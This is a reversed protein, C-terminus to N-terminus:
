YLISFDTKAQLKFIEKDLQLDNKIELKTVKAAKPGKKLWNLMTQIDNDSGCILTEVTNDPMNRVFGSIGLKNAQELTSQRYFVGQVQGYVKCFKCIKTENM